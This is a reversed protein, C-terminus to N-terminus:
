GFQPEEFTPSSPAFADLPIAVTWDGNELQERRMWSEEFRGEVSLRYVDSEPLDGIEFPWACRDFYDRREFAKTLEEPGLTGTGLLNGEEDVVRLEAGAQLYEADESCNPWDANGIYKGTLTHTNSDASTGTSDDSAASCGALLVVMVLGSWILRQM